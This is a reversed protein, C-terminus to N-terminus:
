RRARRSVPRLVVRLKDSVLPIRACGVPDGIRGVSGRVVETVGIGMGGRTARQDRVTKGWQSPLDIWATIAGTLDRVAITPEDPDSVGQSFEIGETYEALYALLRAVLYAESESPHRAVRLSLSEYVHRDTDALEVDFNYVTAGLAM